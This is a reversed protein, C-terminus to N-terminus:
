GIACGDKRPESARHLIGTEPDIRIAQYGGYGHASRIIHHGRNELQKCTDTTIKQELNVTGGGIDMPSGTPEASGLHQFRPADGAEQVDMGFDIMNCLVQAHGQPQMAGGMLGFTLLPQNNKTVMAPIITHFPRKHPVLANRHTPDLSFLQGRNQIPFGLNKPVIGSGFGRFISQILSVVNRNEDVVTM